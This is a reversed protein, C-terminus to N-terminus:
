CDLKIAMVYEEDNERVIEFGLKRYMKSAYNAKQVSLSSQKFGKNKLLDLLQNMLETGIGLGRYENYLSISLSPTENDIHGYDNIIRSWAAGVIKNEVEAVLCFDGRKTGFDKIYIQLEPENIIDRSPKEVGKPIFIAEYLFDELVNTETENLERIRCYM